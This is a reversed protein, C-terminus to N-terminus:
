APRCIAGFVGNAIAGPVPSALLGSVTGFEPADAGIVGFGGAVALAIGAQGAVDAPAVILAAPVPGTGIFGAPGPNAAFLEVGNAGGAAACGPAVIM